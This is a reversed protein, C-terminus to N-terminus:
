NPAQTLESVVARTVGNGSVRLGDGNRGERPEQRWTAVFLVIDRGHYSLLLM